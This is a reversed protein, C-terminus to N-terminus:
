PNEQQDNMRVIYTCGRNLHLDSEARDVKGHFPDSEGVVEYMYRSHRRPPPLYHAQIIRIRLTQGTVKVSGLELPEKSQKRAVLNPRKRGFSPSNASQKALKDVAKANKGKKGQTWEFRVILRYRDSMRKMEAILSKWAHSNLVAAGGKTTWKSDRWTWAANKWNEYVYMSDTRIVIKDFQALDFNAKGSCSLKLAETPAELEMENNTAGMTAPLAHDWTQEDGAANVWIFRIGIGGRRPSGYMSGDVYITLAGEDLIDPPPTLGDSKM